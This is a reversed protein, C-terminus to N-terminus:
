ILNAYKSQEVTPIKLANMAEQATLKLTEMFNRISNLREKETYENALYDLAICSMDTDEGKRQEYMNVFRYDNTLAHFLDFLEKVHKVKGSMPVWRGTKRMQSYYDAVFRFDSQFM